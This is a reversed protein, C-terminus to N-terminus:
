LSYAIIDDGLKFDIQPDLFVGCEKGAEVKNVQEKGVRIDKIKSELSRIRIRDGRALRGDTVKVGAIRLKEFPFEAIIKGAGLIEETTMKELAGAAADKLEDLLEYIIKYGRLIIKETKALDTVSNSVRVNFGIVIASTSKALLIDKETIEGTGSELININQPLKPFIAELSGATDARLILNLANEKNRPFLPQSVAPEKRMHTIESGVPPVETLGLVLVPMGPTANTLQKDSYDFLMRIKHEKNGIFIKQGVTLEGSKVIATAVPGRNKDMKSEIIVAKLDKDDVSESMEWTLNILDLLERIGKNQKASVEVFPISGGFKEILVNHRLLDQLVKETNAEPLDVKNIAVIFPIKAEQIVKISEITQPMVSDNAAVVLVAIDAVTAGRSRMKGFAEHGPTDIFTIGSTQYAGISQTIGGYERGAVDTKRIADLLSTKGHDVHGMVVVVPPRKVNEM